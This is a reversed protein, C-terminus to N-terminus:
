QEDEEPSIALLRATNLTYVFRVGTRTCTMSPEHDTDLMLDDGRLGHWMAVYLLSGLKTIPNKLPKAIGGRYPLVPLEGAEAQRAVAPWETRKAIGALWANIVGRDPGNIRADFDNQFPPPSAFREHIRM